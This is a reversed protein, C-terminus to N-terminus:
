SYYFHLRPPARPRSDDHIPAENPKTQTSYSRRVLRERRWSGDLRSSCSERRCRERREKAREGGGRQGEAPMARSHIPIAPYYLYPNVIHLSRNTRNPTELKVSKRRKPAQPTKRGLPSSDVRMPEMDLQRFLCLGEAIKNSIM